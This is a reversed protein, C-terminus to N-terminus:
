RPLPGANSALKQPPSPRHVGSARSPFTGWCTVSGDQAIACSMQGGAAVDVARPIGAVITPPVPDYSGGDPIAGLAGGSRSGFCSVTGDRLLACAHNRGVRVREADNVGVVVPDNPPRVRSANVFSSLRGFCVVERGRVGCFAEDAGSVDTFRALAAATPPQNFRARQAMADDLIRGWCFGDDGRTVACATMAGVVVNRASQVRDVSTPTALEHAAPMYSTSSGTQGSDNRGWCRVGGGSLIACATESGAVVRRANEIGVVRVARDSRDARLGAGLQGWENAGWCWIAGSRVVACAFAHGHALDIADEIGDVPAGSGLPRSVDVDNTCHVRGGIRVCIEGLGIAVTAVSRTEDSAALDGGSSGSGGSAIPAAAASAAPTANGVDIVRTEDLPARAAGPGCGGCAAIGFTASAGLVILLAPSVTM